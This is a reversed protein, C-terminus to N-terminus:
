LLGFADAKKTTGQASHEPWSPNKFRKEAEDFFQKHTQLDLVIQPQLLGFLPEFM